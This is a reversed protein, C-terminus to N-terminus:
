KLNLLEIENVAPPTEALLRALYTERNQRAQNQRLLTRIRGELEALPPTHAERADLLRIIHWGNELRVPDSIENLALAPLLARIGPQMLDDRIWGLDGGDPASALDDSFRRAVSAFDADAAALQERARALKEEAERTTTPDTDAIFIQAVRWSKPILFSEKNDNYFTVVEATSPFDDPPASVTRLYSEVLAVDAARELEAAVGPADSHGTTNAQELVLRQVLTARVLAKLSEADIEVPQDALKRAADILERVEGTTLRIDGITGVVADDAIASSTLAAATLLIRTVPQFFNM